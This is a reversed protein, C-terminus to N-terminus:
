LQLNQIGPPRNARLSHPAACTEEVQLYLIVRFAAETPPGWEHGVVSAYGSIVTRTPSRLSLSVPDNRGLPITDTSTGTLHTCPRRAINM